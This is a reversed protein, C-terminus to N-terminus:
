GLFKKPPEKPREPDKAIIEFPLNHLGKLELGLQEIDEDDPNMYWTVSAVKGAEQLGDLMKLIDNIFKVSTSNVYLLSFVFKTNENANGCYNRFWTIIESFFLVPTEPYSYGEMKFTGADKDFLVYPTLETAKIELKEM